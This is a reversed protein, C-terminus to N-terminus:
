KTTENDVIRQCLSKLQIAATNIVMVLEYIGEKDIKDKSWLELAMGLAGACNRMTSIMYHKSGALRM